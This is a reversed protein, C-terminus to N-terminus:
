PGELYVTRYNLKGNKYEYVRFTGQRGWYSAVPGAVYLPVEGTWYMEDRHFHGTLVAKVHYRNMLGEWRLRAQVPWGPHLSNNYFDESAPTHTCVIVPKGGASKLARELWAWPDYGNVTFEMRIPETYVMLFVVGHCEFSEALPGFHQRYASLTTEMREPLIDHNGPLFHVPMHLRGFTRKVEAAKQVINDSFMDGTVVVCSIPIPLSNMMDVIREMRLENHPEGAHSDTVQVFFFPAQEPQRCGTVLWLLALSLLKTLSRPNILM